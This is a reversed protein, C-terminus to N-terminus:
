PLTMMFVRKRRTGAERQKGGGGRLGHRVEPFDVEHDSRQM